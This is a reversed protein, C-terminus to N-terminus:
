PKFDEIVTPFRRYFETYLRTAYHISSTDAFERISHMALQPCGVDVTRCGLKTALMPGVTSGCAMDNRVVFQQLPVGSSHAIEKLISHTTSTTAYRQNHNIKVVVGGHFAPKHNDEHRAPFNPHQAHAQDASVIMSRGIGREFLSSQNEGLDNFIRRLCWENFNSDAGQASASGVEENDYAAAIRINSDNTLSNDALSEVLGEVCTYAGVLNDLRQGSIFEKFLGTIAAAQSDYLYLDLDVINEPECNALRALYQLFVPHHDGLINPGGETSNFAENGQLKAMTETCLIPRIEVEKNCTTKERDPELHIALNPICLIPEKSDILKRHLHGELKYCIQGAIALDRDFWSRWTGGGYTSVGVQLFKSSTETSIPKVRLSPSDTHGVVMSFGSGPRFQGGIAFAFITSDNKTVFYKGNPQLKWDESERVETFGDSKLRNSLEHIAHFPTVSRNLFTIFRQAAASVESSAAMSM